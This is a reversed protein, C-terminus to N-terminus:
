ENIIIFLVDNIKNALADYIGEVCNKISDEDNADVDSSVMLRYKKDYGHVTVICRASITAMSPYDKDPEFSWVFEPTKGKLWEKVSNQFTYQDMHWISRRAEHRNTIICLM